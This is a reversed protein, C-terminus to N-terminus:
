LAANTLTFGKSNAESEVADFIESARDIISQADLAQITLSLGASTKGTSMDKLEETSSVKGAAAGGSVVEMGHEGTAYGVNPSTNSGRARPVFDQIGGTGRGGRMYSLEGGSASQSVDIKNERGGLELKGINASAPDAITGSDLASLQMAGMGAVVAALAIGAYINGSTALASMIGVATNAIIATRQQKETEKAKQAEMQAIKKKSAATKGDRKKEASIQKDIDAIAKQSAFSMVGAAAQIGSAVGNWVSESTDGMQTLAVAFNQVGDFMSGMVPDYADLAARAGEYMGAGLQQQYALAEEANMNLMSQQDTRALFLNSLTAAQDQEASTLQIKAQQEKALQELYIDHYAAGADKARQTQQELLEIEKRMATIPGLDQSQMGTGLAGSEAGFKRSLEQKDLNKSKIKAEVIRKEIAEREQLPVNQKIALALQEKAFSLQQEVVSKQIEYETSTNGMMEAFNAQVLALERTSQTAGLLAVAEKRLLMQRDILLANRQSELALINAASKTSAPNKALAIEKEILDIKLQQAKLATTEALAGAGELGVRAQQEGLTSQAHNVAMMAKYLSDYKDIVEKPMNIAKYFDDAKEGAAIFDVFAQNVDSLSAQLVEYPKSTGRVAAAIKTFEEGNKSIAIAQKYAESSANIQASTYEGLTGNAKSVKSDYEALVGTLLEVRNQLKQAQATTTGGFDVQTAGYKKRQTEIYKNFNDVQTKAQNLSAELAAREEKGGGALTMFISGRDGSMIAQQLTAAFDASQKLVREPATMEFIKAAEAAAPELFRSIWQQGQTTASSVAAGLREWGTAQALPDVASQRKESEKLVANLYAQQKQYGTLSTATKGISQAYTDYAETLRVTIGLEDLLEIELKSVGRIIRNLADGMDVGLAVSARRAAITMDKIQDAAFGYTSASTAQRLAQEYSITFGTAEEMDRAINQIPVGVQAGLVAGVRELRNIQDGETMLRFAESLAFANAAIIAYLGPLPGAVKAISSFTRAQNRGQRNVGGLGRNVRDSSAGLREYIEELTASRRGVNETTDDLKELSHILEAIDQKASKTSQSFNNTISDQLQVISGVLENLTDDLNDFQEELQKSDKGRGLTGMVDDVDKAERMIAKLSEPIPRLSEDLLEAGSASNELHTQLKDMNNTVTTLGKQKVNILLEKILKDNGAM